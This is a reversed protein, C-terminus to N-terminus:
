HDEPNDIPLGANQAAQLLRKDASLFIVGARQTARLAQNARLACALQVSDYARLAHADALYAASECLASDIEVKRLRVATDYGFLDLAAMQDTKTSRGERVRRALVSAFEVQTIRAIFFRNDRNPQLNVADV